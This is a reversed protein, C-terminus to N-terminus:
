VNTDGHPPTPIRVRDTGLTPGFHEPHRDTQRTPGDDRSRFTRAPTLRLARGLPSTVLEINYVKCFPKLEIVDLRRESAEVKSV